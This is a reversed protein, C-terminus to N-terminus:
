PNSAVVRVNAAIRGIIVLPRAPSSSALALWRPRCRVVRGFALVHLGFVDRACVNFDRMSVFLHVRALTFPGLARRFPASEGLVCLFGMLLATAVFWACNLMTGHMVLNVSMRM